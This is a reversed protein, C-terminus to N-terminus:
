AKEEKKGIKKRAVLWVLWGVLAWPALILVLKLLGLFSGLLAAGLDSLMELIWPTSKPGSGEYLNVSITALSINYDYYKLQGQITEIQERVRGLEAQVALVEAVTKARALIATYQREENRWNRLRAENDVYDKTVDQGQESKSLLKGGAAAPAQALFSRFKAAPIRLVVAASNAGENELGVNSSEVFGGWDAALKALAEAAKGANKVRLSMAATTIVKRDPAVAVTAADTKPAREAPAPTSASLRKQLQPEGAYGYAEREDVSMRGYIGFGDGERSLAGLTLEEVSPKLYTSIFGIGLLVLILVPWFWPRRLLGKFFNPQKGAPATVAM